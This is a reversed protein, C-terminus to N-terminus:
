LPGRDPGPRSVRVRPGQGLFGKTSCAGITDSHGVFQFVSQPCVLEAADSPRHPM